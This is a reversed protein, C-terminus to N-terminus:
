PQLAVVLPGAGGRRRGAWEAAFQVNLTSSPGKLTEGAELEGHGSGSWGRHEYAVSRLIGRGGAADAVREARGAYFDPEVLVFEDAAVGPVALDAGLDAVASQKERQDRGAGLGAEFAVEAEFPFEGLVAGVEHGLAFGEEDGDDDVGRAFGVGVDGVGEEGDLPGAEGGAFCRGGEDGM